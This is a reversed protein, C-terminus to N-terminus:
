RADRGAAGGDPDHGHGRDRELAGNHGGYEHPQTQTSAVAPATDNDDRSLGVVLAVIVAGVTAGIGLEIAETAYVSAKPIPLTDFQLFAGGTALGALAVAGFVVPGAVLLALLPGARLWAAVDRLGFAFALTVVVAAAVVGGQFGGGVSTTGHFLTFLAFTLVFPSLLRVTTIVVPSDARPEADWAATAAVAPGAGDTRVPDATSNGDHTM